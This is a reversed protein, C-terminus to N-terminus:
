KRLVRDLFRTAVRSIREIRFNGLERASRSDHEARFRGFHDRFAHQPTNTGRQAYAPPAPGATAPIPPMCGSVAPFRTASEHTGPACEAVVSRLAHAPPPARLPGLAALVSGGFCAVRGLAIVSYVGLRHSVERPRPM